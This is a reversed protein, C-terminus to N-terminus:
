AHHVILLSIVSTLADGLGPFLGLISDLGFRINTGPLAFQDDM